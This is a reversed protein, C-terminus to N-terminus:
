LLDPSTEHAHSAMNDINPCNMEMNVALSKNHLTLSSYGAAEEPTDHHQEVRPLVFLMVDEVAAPLPVRGIM